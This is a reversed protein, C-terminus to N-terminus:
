YNAFTFEKTSETFHIEKYNRLIQGFSNIIYTVKQTETKHSAPIQYSNIINTEIYERNYQVLPEQKKIKKPKM